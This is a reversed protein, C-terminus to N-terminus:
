SAKPTVRTGSGTVTPMVQYRPRRANLTHLLRGHFLVHLAQLSLKRGM